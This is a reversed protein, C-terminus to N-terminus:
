SKIALFYGKGPCLRIISRRTGKRDLATRIESIHERCVHWADEPSVQRGEAERVLDVFSVAEPWRRMLVALYWFATGSLRVARNEYEVNNTFVDASLAGCILLGPANVTYVVDKDSFGQTWTEQSFRNQTLNETFSEATAALQKSSELIEEVKQLIKQPSVPKTLYDNVALRVAPAATDMAPYATLILIPIEPRTERIVPVLDIGREGPMKMDLFVLQYPREELCHLGEKGSGATEVSYGARRLIHALTLRLDKEDDIILISPSELM